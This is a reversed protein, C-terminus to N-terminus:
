QWGKLLKIMQYSFVFKYYRKRIMSKSQPSICKDYMHLYSESEIRYIDELEEKSYGNAPLGMDKEAQLLLDNRPPNYTQIKKFFNKITQAAKEIQEQVKSYYTTNM